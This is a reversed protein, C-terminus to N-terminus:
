DDMPDATRRRRWARFVVPLLSIVCLGALPLLIEPAFIIGLDPEEGMELAAGLGNGLGVYVITGPIIGVFTTAVYTLLPVGLLAPVLNVLWFPLLPILRLTILYSVANTRFGAELRSLWPGARRALPEALATRAALFVLTAGATAALVTLVSGLVLGFLFGGVVSVLSAVPLSTAAIVTYILLYGVLSLALNAEVFAVLGHRHERLTEFSFLDGLGFVVALVAIAVLALLPVARRWGAWAGRRGAARPDQDMRKGEVVAMAVGAVGGRGGGGAGGGGSRRMM